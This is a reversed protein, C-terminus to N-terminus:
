VEEVSDIWAGYDHKLSLGLPSNRAEAEAAWRNHAEVHLVWVRYYEDRFHVVWKKM